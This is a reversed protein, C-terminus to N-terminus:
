EFIKVREKQTLSNYYLLPFAKKSNIINEIETIKVKVQELPEEPLMHCMDSLEKTKKLLLDKPGSFLGKFKEELDFSIDTEYGSDNKLDINM